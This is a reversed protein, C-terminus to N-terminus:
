LSTYTLLSHPVTRLDITTAVISADITKISSRVHLFYLLKTRFWSRHEAHLVNAKQIEEMAGKSWGEKKCIILLENQTEIESANRNATM